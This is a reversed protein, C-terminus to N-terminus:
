ILDDRKQRMGAPSLSTLERSYLAMDAPQTGTTMALWSEPAKADNTGYM